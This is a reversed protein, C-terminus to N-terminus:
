SGFSIPARNLISLPVCFTNSTHLIQDTYQGRLSIVLTCFSILVYTYKDTSSFFMIHFVHINNMTKVNLMQNSNFKSVKLFCSIALITVLAM